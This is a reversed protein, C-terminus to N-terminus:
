EERGEEGEEERGGERGGERGREERGGERGGGRGGGRGGEGRGRESGGELTVVTSDAAHHPAVIAQPHGRCVIFPNDLVPLGVHAVHVSKLSMILNNTAEPPVPSQTMHNLDQM